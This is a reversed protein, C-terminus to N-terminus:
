SASSARIVLAPPLTAHQFKLKPNTDRTKFFEWATTCMVEIPQILTTLPCELYETDQIGDCGVLKIDQPIRIQQDCLGRYVGLAVDDSHCFIADPTGHQRIYDQILARVVPRQNDTLPYQIFEPKLGSAKMARLYGLRREQEKDGSLIFTMHAIRKAGTEILHRTAEEAGALLDVKVYDTEACCNAGMGIIPTTSAPHTELYHQTREPADVVVIGDVPVYSLVQGAESSGVESTILEMNERKLLRSMIRTVHAYHSSIQNPIWLAIIGTRGKKLARAHPNPRYGMAEAEALIRKRSSPSVQPYGALAFSVLQRSLGLKKAIDLQTVM